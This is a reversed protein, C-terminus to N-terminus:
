GELAEALLRATAWIAGVQGPDDSMEVEAIVEGSKLNCYVKVSEGCTARLFPENTLILPRVTASALEPGRFSEVAKAYNKWVAAITDVDPITSANDVWHGVAADAERDLRARHDVESSM